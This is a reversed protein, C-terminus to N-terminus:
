VRNLPLSPLIKRRKETNGNCLSVWRLPIRTFARHSKLLRAPFFILTPKSINVECALSAASLRKGTTINNVRIAMFRVQMLASILNYPRTPFYGASTTAGTGDRIIRFSIKVM